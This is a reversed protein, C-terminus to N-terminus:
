IREYLWVFSTRKPAPIYKELEERAATMKKRNSNMAEGHKDYIADVADNFEDTALELEDLEDIDKSIKAFVENSEEELAKIEAQLVEARASEEANLERGKPSWMSYGGVIIDLDGDGDHDVVTPYLGVDPRTPELGGREVPAIIPKLAGFKPAGVKGDNLALYVGGGVGEQSYSDSYTGAILDMDGDGDWDVLKPTTMKAPLAFAVDGAMVPINMGTFKPTTRTGENMQVYLHGGEYTGLLLDYDGDDDWDFALASICREGTAEGDPLSRGLDQHEEAEDSWISSVLLRRGEADKIREPSTFGAESGFSVHPSGDFTATIYDLHGDANLDVFQSGM